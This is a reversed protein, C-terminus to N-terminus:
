YSHRSVRSTRRVETIPRRPLGPEYGLGQRDHGETDSILGPLTLSNADSIRLPVVGRANNDVTGFLMKLVKSTSALQVVNSLEPYKEVASAVLGILMDNNISSLRGFLEIDNASLASASTGDTGQNYIKLKSLVLHFDTESFDKTRLASWETRQRKTSAAFM